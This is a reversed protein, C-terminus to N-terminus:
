QPDPQSVGANKNRLVVSSRDPMGDIQSVVATLGTVDGKNTRLGVFQETWGFTSRIEHANLNPIMLELLDVAKPSFDYMANFGVVSFTNPSWQKPKQNPLNPLKVTLQKHIATSWNITFTCEQTFLPELQRSM